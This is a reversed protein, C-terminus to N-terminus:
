MTCQVFPAKSASHSNDSNLGGHPDSATSTAQLHPLAGPLRESARGDSARIYEPHTEHSFSSLLHSCPYSSM